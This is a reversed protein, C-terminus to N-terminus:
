EGTIQFDEIDDPSIGPMGEVGTLEFFQAELETLRDNIGQRELYQTAWADAEAVAADRAAVAAEYGDDEPTLMSLNATADEVGYRKAAEEYIDESRQLLQNTATLVGQTRRDLDLQENRAQEIANDAERIDLDRMRYAQDNAEKERDFARDADATAARLRASGLTAAASMAARQNANFDAFMQNGLSLAARGLTSDLEMGREGLQIRSLMRERRNRKQQNELNISAAAGGAMAYGVNTAGATGVLFAQLQQRREDKPDYLEEDLAALQAEMEAYRAAKEDRGLVDEGIKVGRMLAAEAGGMSGAGGALGALGGGTTTTVAAPAATTSTAEAEAETAPAPAPQGLGQPTEPSTPLSGIGQMTPLVRADVRGENAIRPADPDAPLSQAPGPPLDRVAQSADPLNASIIDQVERRNTNYEFPQNPRRPDSLGMAAGLGTNSAAIGLNGLVKFPDALLDNIEAAVVSAAGAGGEVTARANVASLIRRKADPPTRQWEDANTIGFDALYDKLSSGAGERSMLRDLSYDSFRASTRGGENFAVIGGGAMRPMPQGQPAATPSPAPAPAPRNQVLAGIGGKAARQLNTQQQQRKRQLVGQTQKALEDKTMQMVEQERQQAITGPQQQMQMEIQRKAAEKESKLKQLALLDVLEKNQQYMQMLQQPNGRYADVRDSVQADIGKNMDM